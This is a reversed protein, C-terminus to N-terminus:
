GVPPPERLSEALGAAWFSRPIVPAIAERLPQSCGPLHRTLMRAWAHETPNGPKRGQAHSAVTGALDPSGRIAIAATLLGATALVSAPQKDAAQAVAGSLHSTHQSVMGAPRPDMLDQGLPWSMCLLATIVRLDTFTRAADDAPHQPSLLALLRQQADLTAPSPAVHGDDDGPQDLRTGCAPPYRSRNDPQLPVRCQAPHLAAAGPFAILTWTGPRRPHPVPCAEHLLRRHRTCAFSIPLQWAKKWAGGFQQQIPSGDGALCDPCYRPGTSFLWNDLSARPQPGPRSRTIPPYRDAWPAITLSRAEGASLGTAHAFRRVNLDIMRRRTIVTRGTACGTLYALRLPSTRLRCSIRLLYGALSEDALPELTRTLPRIDPYADTM